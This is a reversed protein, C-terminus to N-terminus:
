ILWENPNQEGDGRAALHGGDFTTDSGTGLLFAGGHIWFMVAKAKGRNLKSSDQPLYPTWINLFLCDESGQNYIQMCVPSTQLATAEGNGQYVTSYTWRKPEPAYRVGLFRWSLADRFGTLTQNGIKQSIQFSESTNASTPTSYPATQTCLAPLKSACNVQSIRGKADTARCEYSNGQNVWFLQNSPYNKSYVQYALSKQIGFNFSQAEPSWLTESLGQCAKKAASATTSTGLLIAAPRKSGLHNTLM